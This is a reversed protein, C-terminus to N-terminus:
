GIDLFLLCNEQTNLIHCEIQALQNLNCLVGKSEKALSLYTNLKKKM